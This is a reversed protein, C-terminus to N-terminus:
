KSLTTGTGSLLNDAHKIVVSEVGCEIARFANDLKPLMGRSVTGREKLAAYLAPDIHPILSAPNDIDEMVGPQEFCYVLRAPRTRAMSTAIASAVSDASCNLLGGDGDYTIACVVPVLGQEILASLLAANVGDPSIDGVFGYDVPAAPRRTAQIAKGDAGSLGLANCGERQLLAVIRKNILGAYVMTVVELTDASTVRRGELMTAPIGLREGLRTAEKGGGHVLIKPGEMSAFASAFRALAEPSDVVNGGIKVISVTKM